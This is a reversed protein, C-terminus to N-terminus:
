LKLGPLQIAWNNTTAATMHAVPWVKSNLGHLAMSSEGGTLAVGELWVEHVAQHSTPSVVSMRMEGTVEIEFELLPCESGKFAINGFTASVFKAFSATGVMAAQGKASMFITGSKRGLSYVACTTFNKEACNELLTEESVSLTTHAADLTLVMSLDGRGCHISIPIEDILIQSLLIEGLLTLSLTPTEGDLLQWKAQAASTGVSLVGILALLSLVLIKLDRM